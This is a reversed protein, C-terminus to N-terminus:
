SDKLTIITHFTLTDQQYYMQMDGHYKGVAKRISKIGFGHRCKDPKRSTLKNDSKSFPNERSSNVVTIVVFPTKERRCVTIEVFSDPVQEAAEMANDLLNCFLSTLDADAIFDMTGSRIDTHFSIHKEMCQRQYRALIANLMEHDCLRLVERLDSSHMLQHIYGKIKDHEKRDNLMDISQLHKKIDHILINQNENQLLMMEYYQASDAEKQLLLQMETFEVSKKRNYQNFGFVLLNIALLFVASLTIMWHLDPSLTCFDSIKIFTLMVFVSTIPILTLFFVSKDHQGDYKQQKKLFYLHLLISVVTFFILKSCIVFVILNHIENKEMYHPMFYLIIYYVMLECAMMITTLISSHFFASYWNLCYQTSLFLFNAALYLIINLWKSGFLAALFLLFYLGCLVAARIAPKYKAAFCHFAYQWLIMAEASFILFYCVADKM